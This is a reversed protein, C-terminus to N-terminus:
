NSLGYFDHNLILKGVPNESFKNTSSYFHDIGKLVNRTQKPIKIPVVTTSWNSKLWIKQFCKAPTCRNSPMLVPLDLRIIPRTKMTM